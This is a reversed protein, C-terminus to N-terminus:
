TSSNWLKVVRATVLMSESSRLYRHDIAFPSSTRLRLGADVGLERSGDWFAFAAVCLFALRTRERHIFEWPDDYRDSNSRDEDRNLWRTADQPRCFLWCQHYSSVIRLGDSQPFVCASVYPRASLARAYRDLGCAYPRHNPFMQTAKGSPEPTCDGRWRTPQRGFELGKGIVM